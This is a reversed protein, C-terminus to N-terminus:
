KVLPTIWKQFVEYETLTERCQLLVEEYQKELGTKRGLIGSKAYQLNKYETLITNALMNKRSAIHQNVLTTERDVLTHDPIYVFGTALQRQWTLLTQINKPGMGTIKITQLQAIQAANIIGNKYLNAKKAPGFSPITHNSIHFQQLYNYLETNYLREEAKKKMQQFENPLMRFQGITKSLQAALQKYQIIEPPNNYLEVIHELQQHATEYRMRRRNLELSLKRRLPSFFHFAIGMIFPFPVYIRDIAIVLISVVAIAWLFNYHLRKLSKFQKDITASPWGTYSVSLKEIKIEDIKFGNVFQEIDQLAPISRLYNEDLFYVPGHNNKYFCWPCEKLHSPYTHLKTESCRTMNKSLMDLEKAWHAPAPRQDPQEFAQHFLTVLTDPLHRIDLSNLPPSLKKHKRHLSYAFEGTRIAKEEDIDEKSLNRGAYPHRGMFLLQFLLVALSFADTNVTRVVNDFSGRELLEPPTYRTIGVECFFYGSQRRLQFSDCDIFAIYGQTDVLINGENIDGIIIGATHLQHLATALNRAVHALFNYGKDPFTKKRDLPSFLMHLPVFGNLRRMTFGTIQGTHNFLLDQPWAAFTHLAQNQLSVMHQLKASKEADPLETYVKAVLTQNERVEFVQGEGGRGIENGTSYTNHLGRYAQM